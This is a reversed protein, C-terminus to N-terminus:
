CIRKTRNSKYNYKFAKVISIVNIFPFTKSEKSYKKDIGKTKGIIFGWPISAFLYVIVFLIILSVILM